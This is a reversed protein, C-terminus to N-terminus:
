KNLLSVSCSIALDYVQRERVLRRRRGVCYAAPLRWSWMLLAKCLPHASAFIIKWATQSDVSVLNSLQASM